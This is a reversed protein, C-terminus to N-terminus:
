RHSPRHERMTYIDATSDIALPDCRLPGCSRRWDCTRAARKTNDALREPRHYLGGEGRLSTGDHESASRSSTEGTGLSVLSLLLCASLGGCPACLSATARAHYRGSHSSGNLQALRAGTMAGERYLTRPAKSAQESAGSPPPHEPLSEHSALGRPLGYADSKPQWSASAADPPSQRSPTSRPEHHKPLLSITFGDSSGQPVQLPSVVQVM